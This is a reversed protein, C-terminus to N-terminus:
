SYFLGIYGRSPYTYLSTILKRNNKKRKEEKLRIKVEIAKSDALLIIRIRKQTETVHHM